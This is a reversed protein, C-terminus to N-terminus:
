KKLTAEFRATWEPHWRSLAPRNETLDGASWEIRAKDVASTVANDPCLVYFDGRVVGDIMREVVQEATWAGDPKSTAKTMGTYTWGPVLLHATVLRSEQRLAHELQETFVKIGAKSVAYAPDGPPNTIGQKSGTNVIAARTGQALLSPVFRQVGNVVGWLNVDLMRHWRDLAGWAQSGGGIAANNMLLAVPGLAFAADHLRALDDPRSVDGLVAHGGLGRAVEHVAETQDFLCVRMGRKKLLEAAARGIGSAGGTIVAIGSDLM